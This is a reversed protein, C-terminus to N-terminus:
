PKFTKVSRRSVNNQVDSRPRTEISDSWRRPRTYTEADSRENIVRSRLILGWKEHCANDCNVTEDAIVGSSLSVLM